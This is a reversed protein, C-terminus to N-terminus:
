ENELDVVEQNLTNYKNIIKQNEVKELTFWGKRFWLEYIERQLNAIENFMEYITEYLSEHSAESMAIVLNKELDKCVTLISEVYDKDNLELGKPVETKPNCIKNDNMQSVEEDSVNDVRNITKKYAGYHWHFMDCLYDLDKGTFIDPVQEYNM